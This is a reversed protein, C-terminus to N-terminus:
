KRGGAAVAVAPLTLRLTTGSGNEVGEGAVVSLSGSHAEVISQSITLGIGLGGSKTTYFPHFVKRAHEPSLGPGNDTVMLEVEGEGSARTRLVLEGDPCGACAEIGNRLLNILVQDIQIRYAHVPLLDPALDLRVRVGHERAEIRILRAADRVVDNINVLTRPPERDRVMERLHRIIEGAREAQLAIQGLSETLGDDGGGRRLRELSGQAFNTIAALPQNLEHALGAAMEGMTSMRTVHSLQALYRGREEEAQRRKSIDVFTVVCGLATGSGGVVPHSWCEVPLTAGDVRMLYGDEIHLAENRECAERIACTDPGPGEGEAGGLAIVGRLDRGVLEAADACGMLRVCARNAFTCTGDQALGYIGEATSDLLLRVQEKQERLAEEAQKQETIDAAIGAVLEPEGAGERVPYSRNRIWRMTGDPRFIRYVQEMPQRTQEAFSALVGERDDPHIAELFSRPDRYVSECSCGWIEQYAPSVYLLESAHPRSLWFVERINDTVLRLREESAKLAAEMEKRDTIDLVTGMLSVPEGTAPDRVLEGRAVVHRVAREDPFVVRHESRFPKGGAIADGVDRIVRDRDDPHLGRRLEDAPRADSEPPLGFIRWTEESATIRDDRLCWEWHGLNAIAQARAHDAESRRLAAEVAERQALSRSIFRYVWGVVAASALLLTAFFLMVLRYHRRDIAVVDRLMAGAREEHLLELRNVEAMLEELRASLEEPNGGAPGTVAELATARGELRSLPEEFLPTGLRDQLDRLARVHRRLNHFDLSGAALREPEGAGIQRRLQLYESKIASTHVIAPHHFGTVRLQRDRLGAHHWTTITISSFALVVLAAALLLVVRRISRAAGSPVTGVM